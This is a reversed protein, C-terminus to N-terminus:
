VGAILKSLQQTRAPIDPRLDRSGGLADGVCHGFPATLTIPSVRKYEQGRKVATILLM